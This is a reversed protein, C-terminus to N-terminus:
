VRFIPLSLEGGATGVEKGEAEEHGELNFGREIFGPWCLIRQRGTIIVAHVDDDADAMFAETIDRLM